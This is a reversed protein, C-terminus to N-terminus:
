IGIRAIRHIATALAAPNGAAVTFGSDGDAEIDQTVTDSILVFPKDNVRKRSGAVVVDAILFPAEDQSTGTSEAIKVRKKLGLHGMMDLMDRKVDESLVILHYSEPLYYLAHLTDALSTDDAASAHVVWLNNDAAQTGSSKGKSITSQRM